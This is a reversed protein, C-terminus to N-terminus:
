VPFIDSYRNQRPISDKFSVTIPHGTLKRAAVFQDICEEVPGSPRLGESYINQLVPLVETTQDGVLEQLASLHQEIQQTSGEINQGNILM